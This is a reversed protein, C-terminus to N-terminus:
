HRDPVCMSAELQFAVEVRVILLAEGLDPVEERISRFSRADASVFLCAQERVVTKARTNLLLKCRVLLPGERALQVDTNAAVRGEEGVFVNDLM